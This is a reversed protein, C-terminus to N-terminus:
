MCVTEMKDELEARLQEKEQRLGQLTEKLQDKEETLSAVRSLMTEKEQSTTQTNATKQM